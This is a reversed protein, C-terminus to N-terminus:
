IYVNKRLWITIRKFRQKWPYQKYNGTRINERVREWEMEQESLNSGMLLVGVKKILGFRDLFNDSTYIFDILTETLLVCLIVV